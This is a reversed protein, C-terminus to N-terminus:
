KKFLNKLTYKIINYQHAGNNNFIWNNFISANKIMQVSDYFKNVTRYIKQSTDIDSFYDIICQQLIHSNEPTFSTNCNPDFKRGMINFLLYNEKMELSIAFQWQKLKKNNDEIQFSYFHADEYNWEMTVYHTVNLRKLASEAYKMIDEIKTVM